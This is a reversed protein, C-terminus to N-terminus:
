KNEKPAPEGVSVRASSAFVETMVERFHDDLWRGDFATIVCGSDGLLAREIFNAAFRWRREAEREGKAAYNAQGTRLRDVVQGVARQGYEVAEHSPVRPTM